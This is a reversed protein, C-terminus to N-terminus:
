AHGQARFVVYREGDPRDAHASAVDGFVTRLSAVVQQRTPFHLMADTGEYFSLTSVAREDFGPQPLCAFDLAAADIRGKVASQAVGQRPDDQLAMAVRWKFRHFNDIEGRRAAELVMDIRERVVPACFARFVFMGDDRLLARVRQFLVEPRAFFVPAGDTAVLAPTESAPPSFDLWDGIIARRQGPVDGPWVHRLMAASQDIATWALPVPWTTTVLEPTVGLLLAPLPERPRAFGAGVFRRYLALDPEGPRLPTGYRDFWRARLEWTEHLANRSM